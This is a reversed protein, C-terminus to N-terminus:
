CFEASAQKGILANFGIRTCVIFNNQSYTFNRANYRYTLGIHWKSIEITEVNVRNNEEKKKTGNSNYKYIRTHSMAYIYISLM